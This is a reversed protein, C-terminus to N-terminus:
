FTQIRKIIIVNTAAPSLPACQERIRHFKNDNVYHLFFFFLLFLLLLIREPFEFSEAAYVHIGATM